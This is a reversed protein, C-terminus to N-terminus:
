QGCCTSRAGGPTMMSLGEARLQLGGGRRRCDLAAALRGAFTVPELAPPTILYVRCGDGGGTIRPM